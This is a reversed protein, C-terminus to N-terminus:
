NWKEMTMIEKKLKARARADHTAQHYKLQYLPIMQDCQGGSELKETCEYYHMPSHKHEFETTM